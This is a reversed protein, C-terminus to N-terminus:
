EVTVEVEDGSVVWMKMGIPARRAGMEVSPVNEM